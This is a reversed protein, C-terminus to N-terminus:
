AIRWDKDRPQIRARPNEVSGDPMIIPSSKMDMNGPQIIQGEKSGFKSMGVRWYLSAHVWHDETNKKKWIFVPREMADLEQVRYINLWHQTYNEWEEPTGNFTWRNDVIEDVCMQITRNRDVTVNGEEENNGWRVLEMTKRDRAYHVLFVRGPYKERLERPRTLDPLADILLISKPFRNLFVEIDAWTETKGYHFIGDKNGLVYHKTLGSDAGIVVEDQLNVANSVNRMITERTVTNTDGMYPLGLIKNWFFDKTVQPSQYKDVIESASVWPCMLLSVWYGSYERNNYKAIWKGKRRDEKSLVGSCKKCVFEKTNFNISEPFSLYQQKKCSPCTIFWHKQDSKQWEVDVGFGPVSPHSFTHKEKYKSHQLRAEYADIVDQKSSDKEDHILRDAAVMIAARATFTGRFYIMSDGVQKQEITDKDQTYQQLIPNQAIIRNVKGGVFTQVDQDTPLTYIFDKKQQRAEYLMKLVELTSLGVQAAKMVVLNPSTDRYIDFLFLHDKFDLPDGKENKIGYEQIWAHISIDSLNM